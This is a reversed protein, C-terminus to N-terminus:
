INKLTMTVGTRSNLEEVQGSAYHLTVRDKNITYELLDSAVSHHWRSSGDDTTVRLLFYKQESDVFITFLDKDFLQQLYPRGPIYWRTSGTQRDLAILEGNIDDIECAAYYNNNDELISLIHVIGKIKKVWQKNGADPTKSTLMGKEPNFSLMAEKMNFSYDM